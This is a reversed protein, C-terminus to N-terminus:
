RGRAVHQYMQQKFCGASTRWGKREKVRRSRKVRPADDDDDESWDTADDFAGLVVSWDAMTSATRSQEQVQHLVSVAVALVTTALDDAGSAM